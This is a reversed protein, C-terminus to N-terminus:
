TNIIHIYSIDIYSRERVMGAQAVVGGGGVLVEGGILVGVQLLVRPRLPVQEAAVGRVRKGIALVSPAAIAAVAEVPV